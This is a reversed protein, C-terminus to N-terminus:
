YGGPEKYTVGYSGWITKLHGQARLATMAEGVAYALDRSDTRVAGGLDWATKIPGPGQVETVRNVDMPAKAAFLAAEIAARTGTLLPTEGALYAKAAADFDKFHRLNARFRGGEATLVLIDAASAGEAAVAHDGIDALTEFAALKDTRYAFALRQDVYPPTLFIQENRLALLRDNPVHLMLDVLASGALDGRWLNLRLDGDVNEGADVLRLDLRVKLAEAIAKALDVDIGRPSGQGADSFPANDDYVAVRLTGSAVVEDLPRASAAACTLFGCAALVLGRLPAPEIKM